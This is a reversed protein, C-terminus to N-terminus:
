RGGRWQRHRSRGTRYLGARGQQGGETLAMAKEFVLKQEDIMVFEENGNLMSSLKEALLKSPRIRGNEIDFHLLGNDGTRIFQKIFACASRM